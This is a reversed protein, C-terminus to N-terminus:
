KEEREDEKSVNNYRGEKQEELKDRLEYIESLSLGTEKSIDGLSYYGLRILRVALEKTRYEKVLERAKLLIQKKSEDDEVRLICGNIFQLAAKSNNNRCFSKIILNINGYKMYIPYNEIIKSLLFIDKIDIRGLALERKCFEIHDRIVDPTPTEAEDYARKIIRRRYKIMKDRNERAEKVKKNRVDGYSLIKKVRDKVTREDLNFIRGIEEETYGLKLSKFIRSELLLPDNLDKDDQGNRENEFRIVEEIARYSIGLKREIQMVSRGENFYMYIIKNRSPNDKKNEFAISEYQKKERSKIKGLNILKEKIRLVEVYKIELERSIEKCTKNKNLLDLVRNEIEIDIEM